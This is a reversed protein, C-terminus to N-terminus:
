KMYTVLWSHATAGSAVEVIYTGKELGAPAWTYRTGRVNKIEAVKAGSANYIRIDAHNIPNKFELLVSGQFPNPFASFGGLARPASLVGNKVGVTCINYSTDKVSNIIQGSMWQSITIEYDTTNIMRYDYTVTILSITGSLIIEDCTALMTQVNGYGGKTMADALVSVTFYQTLCCAAQSGAPFLPVLMTMALFMKFFLLRRIKRTCPMTPEEQIFSPYFSNKSAPPILLGFDKM